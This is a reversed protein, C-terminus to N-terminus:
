LSSSLQTSNIREKEREKTRPMSNLTNHWTTTKGVSVDQPGWKKNKDLFSVHYLPFLLNSVELLVSFQVNHISHTSHQPCKKTRITKLLVFFNPSISIATHLQIYIYSSLTHTLPVLFQSFPSYFASLLHCSIREEMRKFLCLCLFPICSGYLHGSPVLSRSDLLSAPLTHPTPLHPRCCWLWIASTRNLPSATM